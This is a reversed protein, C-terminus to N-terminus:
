ITKIDSINVKKIQTYLHHPFNTRSMLNYYKKIFLWYMNKFLYCQKDALDIVDDPTAKLVQYFFLREFMNDLPSDLALEKMNKLIEKNM